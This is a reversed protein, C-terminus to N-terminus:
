PNTGPFLGAVVGSLLETNGCNQCVVPIVAFVTAGFPDGPYGKLGVSQGIGWDSFNCVPCRRDQGWKRKVWELAEASRDSPSSM